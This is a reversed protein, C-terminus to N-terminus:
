QGGNKIAWMEELTVGYQAAAAKASPDAAFQEFTQTATTPAAAEETEVPQLLGQARNMGREAISRLETLAKIYEATSQARELRAMADKAAQGERETIQGGGKLSEFAELFAKGGIQRIKVGLDAGEQGGTVLPIGTPLRGQVNGTISPLAPDNIVSDILATMEQAKALVEPAAAVKTAQARGQETGAAVAAAAQGGTEVEAVNQGTTRDYAQQYAGRSAMFQEYEPTGPRLGADQAQMKLARYTAPDGGGNLMFSQYEPSGPQLGAQDARWKLEAAASPLNANPDAQKRSDFIPEYTVPDLLVGGVEIPQKPQAAEMEQKLLMQVIARQGDTAVPNSAAQVLQAIRATNPGAQAVRAGGGGGQGPGRYGEWAGTGQTSLVWAGVKDQTRQDFKDDPSVVGAKVAERLTTGVVQYAGVPTAVRGVQGKVWQGYEGQPDQFQLVDDVRMQSPRVGEYKGGPRNQYGFVADYDGGSEGAFIGAQIHEKGHWPDDVGMDSQQGGAQAFRPDPAANPDVPKGEPYISPTPAKPSPVSGGSSVYSDYGGGGMLKSFDAEFEDRLVKEREGTRKEISKAALARGIAALGEGVNRPTQLNGELMKDAIKRRQQLQEYTMDTNGGFIFSDRM